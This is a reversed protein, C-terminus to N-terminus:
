QLMEKLEIENIIKVNLDKAKELKSGADDGALVYDTKKSVSGSCKGGNQEIIKEFESRPKSLTGTIVFTKGELKNTNIIEEEKVKVGFGIMQNLMEINNEDKFYEIISNAVIDGIDEISTLDEYTANKILAINKYKNALSKATNEGCNPIGLAFIINKLPKEKSNKISVIANEAAKEGFKDLQLFDDYTLAYLDAPTKIM